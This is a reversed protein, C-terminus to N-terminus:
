CLGVNGNPKKFIIKQEICKEIFVDDFGENNLDEISVDDSHMEICARLGEIQDALSPQFSLKQQPSQIVEEKPKVSDLQERTYQENKLRLNMYMPIKEGDHELHKKTVYCLPMAEKLKKSFWGKSIVQIKNARCWLVHAQYVVETEVTAGEEEVCTEDVFAIIPNAKRDYAKMNEECTKSYSFKGNEKLRKLGEMAWNFLGSLEDQTTLKDIIHPDTNKDTDLFTNPFTIHIM